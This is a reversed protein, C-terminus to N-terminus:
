AMNRSGCMHTAMPKGMKRATCNQSAKEWWSEV